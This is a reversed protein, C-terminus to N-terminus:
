WEREAPLGKASVPEDVLSANADEIFQDAFYQERKALQERADDAKLFYPLQELQSEVFREVSEPRIMADRVFPTFLSVPANVGVPRVVCQRQRQDFLTAMARFKQEELSRFQVHTLEQGMVPILMPVDSESHTETRSYSSSESTSTAIHRNWSEMVATIQGDVTTVSGVEGEGSAESSGSSAGETTSVAHGYAKRYEELYGMVKTGYLEHKVEDLDMTGMFLAQALPDLNEPDSLAFCVKTRANEMVSNWLRKGHEGADSLQKPFQHAMTLHLGFGRAEDLSQAITPSIFRQFEDIYVYFPKADKKKGRVQAAIWLDHLLLTAFLEADSKSVRAGETALSVLIIAGDELARDLDLSVGVQGFMSRMNRNAVFRKLRNVTSGVQAEFDRASLSNAFEWDRRSVNDSLKATMAKRLDPRGLLHISEVLTFDNEYLTQIINAAWRAFLPTQDTGSAGWVFAMAEVLNDVIVSPEAVERKRLLNYSLTHDDRRLDIPIVPRDMGMEALWAVVSDYLSGHPDLLLLGCKSRRWAKIDQRILHELFKSKGAGTAGCVYLHTSRAEPPLTLPRRQGAIHGLNLPNGPYKGM